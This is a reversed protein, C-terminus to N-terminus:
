AKCGLASSFTAEDLDIMKAVSITYVGGCHSLWDQYGDAYDPLVAETRLLKIVSKDIADKNFPAHGLHQPAPGGTCNKFQIGDIRVHIIVGLKPTSEVRLITLISHEEGERAKYSWVQGPIYKEDKVSTPVACTKTQAWM